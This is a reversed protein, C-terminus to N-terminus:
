QFDCLVVPDSQFSQIQLTIVLSFLSKRRVAFPLMHTSCGAWRPVSMKLRNDMITCMLTRTKICNSNPDQYVHWLSYKQHNYLSCPAEGFQLWFWKRPMGFDGYIRYGETREMRKKEGRIERKEGERFAPMSDPNLWETGRTKNVAQCYIQRMELAKTMCISGNLLMQQLRLVEVSGLIVDM